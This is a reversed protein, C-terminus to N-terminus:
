NKLETLDSGDSDPSDCHDFDVTVMSPWLSGPQTYKNMCYEVTKSNGLEWGNTIVAMQAVLISLNAGTVDVIYHDAVLQFM